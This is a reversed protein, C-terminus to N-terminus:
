LSQATSHVANRPFSTTGCRTLISGLNKPVQRNIDTNLTYLNKIEFKRRTRFRTYINKMLGEFISRVSPESVDAFCDSAPSIGLLFYELICIRERHLDFNIWGGAM